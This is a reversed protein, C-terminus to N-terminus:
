KAEDILNIITKYTDALSGPFKEDDAVVAKINDESYTLFRIQTVGDKSFTMIFKPMLIAREPNASLSKAAKPPNCVQIMHLDFDEAVKVGHQGFTHSMDMTNQNHVVLGKTGAAEAFSSAFEATTKSSTTSYVHDKHM